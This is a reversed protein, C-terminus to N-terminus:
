QNFGLSIKSDLEKTLDLEYGLNSGKLIRQKVRGLYNKDKIEYAEKIARSEEILKSAGGLAIVGVAYIYDEHGKITKANEIIMPDYGKLKIIKMYENNCYEEFRSYLKKSYLDKVRIKNDYKIQRKIDKQFRVEFRLVNLNVFAEPIKVRKYKMEAIKDYTCITRCKLNHYLTTEYMDNRKYRGKIGLLELYDTCPNDLVLNRAFELKTISAGLLSLGIEYQIEDLANLTDDYTFNQLNNGHYYKAISGSISIFDPGIIIKLNKLHGFYNNMEPKYKNPRSKFKIFKTKHVNHYNQFIRLYIKIRDYM